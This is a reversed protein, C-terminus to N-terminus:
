KTEKETVCSDLMSHMQQMSYGLERMKDYFNKILQMAQCERANDIIQSNDTIFRGSTRNSYVLGQRELEQFARQMTNPNVGATKAMDRVSPMRDGPKFEGSLIMQQIREVLQIYVSRNNEIQWAM